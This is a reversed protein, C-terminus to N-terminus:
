RAGAKASCESLLGGDAAAGLRGLAAVCTQADRMADKLSGAAGKTVRWADPVTWRWEAGHAGADFTVSALVAPQDGAFTREGYFWKLGQRLDRLQVPFPDYGSVYQSPDLAVYEAVWRKIAEADDDSFTEASAMSPRASLLAALAAEAGPQLSVTVDDLEYGDGEIYYVLQDATIAVDEELWEVLETKSPAVPRETEWPGVLLEDLQGGAAAERAARELLAWVDSDEDFVFGDEFYAGFKTVM